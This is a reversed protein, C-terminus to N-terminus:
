KSDVKNLGLGEMIKFNTRSYVDMFEKETIRCLCLTEYDVYYSDEQCFAIYRIQGNREQFRIRIAHVHMGEEEIDNKNVGIIYLYEQYYPDKKFKTEHVCLGKIQKESDVFESLFLNKLMRLNAKQQRQYSSYKESYEKQKNEVFRKNNLYDDYNEIISKFELNEPGEFPENKCCCINEGIADYSCKELEM